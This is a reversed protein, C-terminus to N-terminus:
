HENNFFELELQSTFKVALVLRVELVDQADQDPHGLRPHVEGPLLNAVAGELGVGAVGHFRESVIMRQHHSFSRDPLYSCGGLDQQLVDFIEGEM